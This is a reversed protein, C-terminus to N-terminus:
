IGHPKRTEGYGGRLNFQRIREKDRRIQEALRNHIAVDAFRSNRGLPEHGLAETIDRLHISTRLSYLTLLAAAVSGGIWFIWALAPVPHPAAVIAALALLPLSVFLLGAIAYGAWASRLMFIRTRQMESQLFTEIAEIRRPYWMCLKMWWASRLTWAPNAMDDNTEERDIRAFFEQFHRNLDNAREQIESALTRGNSEMVSSLQSDRMYQYGGAILTVVLAVVGIAAAAVADAALSPAFALLVSPVLLAAIGFAQITRKLAIIRRRNRMISYRFATVIARMDQDRPFKQEMVEDNVDIYYLWQLPRLLNWRRDFYPTYDVHAGYYSNIDPEFSRTAEYDIPESKPENEEPIKLATFIQSRALYQRARIKREASKPALTALHGSM